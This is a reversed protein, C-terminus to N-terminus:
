PKVAVLIQDGEIQVEYQKLCIGPRGLAQGSPVDFVWEHMPCVIKGTWEGATKYGTSGFPTEQHPCRNSFALVVGGQNVLLLSRKEVRLVRSSGHSLNALTTAFVFQESVM